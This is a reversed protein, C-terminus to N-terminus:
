ELESGDEGGMVNKIEEENKPGILGYLLFGFGMVLLAVDLTRVVVYQWTTIHVASAFAPIFSVLDALIKAFGTAQESSVMALGLGDTLSGEIGLITFDMLIFLYVGGVAFIIGILLMILKMKKLM